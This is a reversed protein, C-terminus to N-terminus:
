QVKLKLETLTGNHRLVMSRLGEYQQQAGYAYGISLACIVVPIMIIGFRIFFEKTKRAERREQRATMEKATELM